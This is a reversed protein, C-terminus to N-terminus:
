SSEGYAFIRLNSLTYRNPADTNIECFVIKLDVGNVVEMPFALMLGGPMITSVRSWIAGNWAWKELPHDATPILYAEINTSSHIFFECAADRSSTIAAPASWASGTWRTFLYQWGSATNESYIIYPKGASDARVRAQNTAYRRSDVVKCHANAETEDITSGLNTGDIAYMKNDKLDLYAYYVNLRLSLIAYHRVWAVHIRNSKSEYEAGGALLYVRDNVDGSYVNIMDQPSSWTVGGDTSTIIDEVLNSTLPDGVRNSRYIVHLNGSSDKLLQPYTSGRNPPVPGPMATWASIDEPKASKAYKQASDHSGYMIHIHGNNDVIIAPAGHDDNTPPGLPNDAVLVPASWGTASTHSAVYIALNAGQWTVYTRGNYYYAGPSSAGNLPQSQGYPLVSTHANANTTQTTTTVSSSKTTAYTSTGSTKTTTSTTTTSVRTISSSTQTVITSATSFSSSTKTITPSSAASITRTTLQTSNTLTNSSVTSAISHTTSGANSVITTAVTISQTVSGTSTLTVTSSTSVVSPPQGDLRAKGSSSPLYTTDGNFRAEAWNFTGNNNTYIMGYYGQSDTTLTYTWNSGWGMVTLLVTKDAVSKDGDKERLWGYLKSASGAGYQTPVYNLSLTTQVRVIAISPMTASYGHLALTLVIMAAALFPKSFTTPLTKHLGVYEIM